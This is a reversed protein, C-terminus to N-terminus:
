FPIEDEGILDDKPTAKKLRLGEIKSANLEYYKVEEDNKNTYSKEDLTGRVTITQGKELKQAAEALAGWCVVKLWETLKNDGFGYNIALSFSTVANGNGTTRSEPAKGLTGVFTKQEFKILDYISM